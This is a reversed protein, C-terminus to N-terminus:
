HLYINGRNIFYHLFQLVFFDLIKSLLALLHCICVDFEPRQIMSSCLPWCVVAVEYYVAETSLADTHLGEIVM